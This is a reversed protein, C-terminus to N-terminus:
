NHRARRITCHGFYGMGGHRGRHSRGVRGGDDEEMSAPGDGTCFHCGSRYIDIISKKGREPAKQCRVDDATLRSILDCSRVLINAHQDLNGIPISSPLRDHWTSTTSFVKQM